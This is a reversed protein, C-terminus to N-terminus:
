IWRERLRRMEDTEILIRIFEKVARKRYSDKLIHFSGEMKCDACDIPIAKLDSHLKVTTSSLITALFKNHVLRLLPTVQNVEIQAELTMNNEDLVRDLVNRAQLGKAPLILQCKTLDDLSVSERAAMQHEKHVILSLTDEFIVHSEVQPYHRFPKYSVVFDLERRTLLEMLEGMTKYVVNLRMGPYANIFLALTEDVIRNFSHTVGINLTGCRLDNLDNMRNVCNDSQQVTNRAFPLLELGADTLEVEHSNRYFLQVHLEEELQRVNQSLSSQTMSLQKAAVSFNLTEAVRVFAKLQRLEM